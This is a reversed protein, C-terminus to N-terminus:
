YDAETNRTKVTGIRNSFDGVNAKLLAVARLRILHDSSDLATKIADNAEKTKQKALADLIALVADNMEGKETLSLERKLADVLARANPESSPSNGLLEAATSRVIVDDEDLQKRLLQDLNTPKFDAYAQTVAPVAFLPMDLSSLWHALIQQAKERAAANPSDKTRAIEQLGQAIGSLSKWDKMIKSTDIPKGLLERIDRHTKQVYQDSSVRASAIEFEPSAFYEDVRIKWLWNLAGNNNTNSLLRGLTNGIELLENLEKARGAGISRKSRYGASLRTARDLLPEAAKADKLSGLARIASVRVRLDDDNLARALLADYALKDETAGLVRAANARVVADGSGLLQRVQENGDKLRLRALTNLADAVIRFDTYHLFRVVVPGAGDPRTRLVATLGLLITERDSMSRRGAEFRLAELITTRIKALPKDEPKPLNGRDSSARASSLLAGGIKGLAEVARARVEAPARTDDLIEILAAAGDASEIEGIAFAIMQRVDNDAETKLVEILAPLAREDGIRGMALAARKRVSAEKYGFLVPLTNDWRREDEARVIRLLVNTPIASVPRNARPRQATAATYSAVM